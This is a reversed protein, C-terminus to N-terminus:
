FISSFLDSMFGGSKEGAKNAMAQGILAQLYGTRDSVGLGAEATGQTLSGLKDQQVFQQYKDQGAQKLAYNDLLMKREADMRQTTQDNGLQRQQAVALGGRVGSRGQQSLLQRMMGQQQGRMAGMTQTRNAEMEESNLGQMGGERMQKLRMIEPDDSYLGKWKDLGGQFDNDRQARAQEPTLMQKNIQDNIGGGGGIGFTSLIGAHAPNGTPGANQPAPAPAPAMGPKLWSYAPAAPAAPATAKPTAAQPALAAQKKILAALM